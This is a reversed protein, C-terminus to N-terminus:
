FFIDLCLILLWREFSTALACYYRFFTYRSTVADLRALRKCDINIIMTCEDDDVDLTM